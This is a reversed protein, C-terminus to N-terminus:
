GPERAIAVSLRVGPGAELDREKLKSGMMGGVCVCQAWLAM